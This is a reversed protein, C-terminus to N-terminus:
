SFYFGSGAADEHKNLNGQGREPSKQKEFFPESNKIDNTTNKNKNAGNDENFFM